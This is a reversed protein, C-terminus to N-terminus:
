DDESRIAQEAMHGRRMVNNMADEIYILTRVKVQEAAIQTADLPSIQVLDRMAQEADQRVAEMLARITPNDRLDTEIAISDALIRFRTDRAELNALDDNTLSDSM